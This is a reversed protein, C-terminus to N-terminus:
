LEKNGRLVNTPVYYTDKLRYANIISTQAPIAISTILTSGSVAFYYML